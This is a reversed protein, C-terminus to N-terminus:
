MKKLLDELVNYDEAQEWLTEFTIKLTKALNSHEVVQFTFSEGVSIHDKLQFIAVKEDFVAMKMPLEAIVRNEDCDLEATERIFKLKLHLEEKTKPIEHITKIRIKGAKLLEAQQTEQEKITENDVTYPPKDFVLMEKEAKGVLEMYRKHIQYSNKIIEIFDMPNENSRSNRYIPTLKDLLDTVNERAAKKESLIEEQKEYLKNLRGEFSRDLAELAKKELSAPDAASYKRIKGPKSVCFGKALLKELAEYANARPIGAIRAVEAVSLTHKELLSLYCRTEYPSLKLEKFKTIIVGNSM